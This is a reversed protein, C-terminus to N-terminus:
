TRDGKTTTQDGADGVSPDSAGVSPDARAGERPVGRTAHRKPDIELGLAVFLTQVVASTVTISRIDGLNTDKVVVAHQALSTWPGEVDDTIALVTAGREAALRGAALVPAAYPAFSIVLLADGPGLLGVQGDGMGGVADVLVVRRELRSLGYFMYAAAPFARHQGMVAVLGATRLTEVVAEMAEIDLTSRAGELARVSASVYGELVYELNRRGGDAPPRLAAMRHLYGTEDSAGSRMLRQLSSFGPFGLYQAFRVLASPSLSLHEALEALTRTTMEEPREIMADAIRRLRNPMAARELRVRDLMEAAAQAPAVSTVRDTEEVESEGAAGSM